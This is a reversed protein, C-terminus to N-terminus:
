SRGGRSSPAAPMSVARPATAGTSRSRPFSLFGRAIEAFRDPAELHAAHGVGEIVEVRADPLSRALESAIACFKADEGGVVLLVPCRVRGLEAHLPAQAGAGMGRLSHALGHPRNELRQRRAQELVARGLRTQSAFLPQAMWADVFRGLGDRLISGALAADAAIREARAAPDAIGATAGVLVLSAFAEPRAIAAALAARGGMSYGLLHPREFGLARAADAIQAACAEMAYAAPADPADSRGHGVLELRAVRAVPALGRAVSEMSEAAGTFGHLVLVDPIPTAGTRQPPEDVVAHLRIGGAEVFVGRSAEASM